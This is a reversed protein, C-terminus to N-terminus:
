STHAPRNFWRMLQRHADKISALQQSVTTLREAWFDQLKAQDAKRDVSVGDAMATTMRLIERCQDRTIELREGCSQLKDLLGQHISAPLETPM